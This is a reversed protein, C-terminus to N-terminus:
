TIVPSLAHIVFPDIASKMSTAARVLSSPARPMLVKRTGVEAAPTVAPM